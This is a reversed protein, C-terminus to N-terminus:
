VSTKQGWSGQGHGRGRGRGWGRGRGQGEEMGELNCWVTAFRMRLVGLPM